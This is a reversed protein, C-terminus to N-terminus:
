PKRGMAAYSHAALPDGPVGGDPHWTLIPVVGPDVLDLGTFFAAVEAQARPVYTVGSRQGAARGAAAQEPDLFDATLHSITLYSGSPLADLLTSAIGLPNEEDTFFHVVAVLMLAVPKNLDLTRPLLPNALIQDPEHLDAQIFATADAAGGKMLAKAHALVIPDNDVYVVRSDPAAQAVEHTNGAAPIGCGIDLFQRIGAEAALFRVARGLFARNARAAFRTSPMAAIMADGLARDAAFNERGGLWYNYVRATHAVGTNLEPPLWDPDRPAASSSVGSDGANPM